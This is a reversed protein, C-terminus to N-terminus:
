SVAFLETSNQETSGNKSKNYVRVSATRPDITKNEAILGYKHEMELIVREMEQNSKQAEIEKRDADMRARLIQYRDQPTIEM